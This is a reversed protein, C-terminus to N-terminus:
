ATLTPDALAGVQMLVPRQWRQRYPSPFDEVATATGQPILANLSHFLIAFLLCKQANVSSSGSESHEIQVAM